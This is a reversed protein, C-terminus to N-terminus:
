SYSHSVFDLSVICNFSISLVRIHKFEGEDTQVFHLVVSADNLIYIM